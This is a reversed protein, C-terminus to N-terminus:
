QSEYAPVVWRWCGTDPRSLVRVEKQRGSRNTGQLIPGERLLSLPVCLSFVPIGSILTLNEKQDLRREKESDQESRWIILSNDLIFPLGAIYLVTTNCPFLFYLIM